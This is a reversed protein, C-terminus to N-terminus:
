APEDANADDLFERVADPDMGSVFAVLDILDARVKDLDGVGHWSTPNARAQERRKDMEMELVDILRAIDGDRKAFTEAPTAEPTSTAEIRALNADAVALADKRLRATKTAPKRPTKSTKSTTKKAM